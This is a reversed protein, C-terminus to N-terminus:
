GMKDKFESVVEDAEMYTYLMTTNLNAHGLAEQLARMNVNKRVVGIAWTHRLVHPSVPKKIGSAKAIKKIRKQVARIGIGLDEHLVFWSALLSKARSDVLPVIRVKGGKGEVRLRDQQHLVSQRTLKVLESVRLGTGLLVGVILRDLDNDCSAYLDDADEPELPFRRFRRVRTRKKTKPEDESRDM